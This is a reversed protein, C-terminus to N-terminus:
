LWHEYLIACPVSLDAGTYKHTGTNLGWGLPFIKMSLPITSPIIMFCAKKNWCAWLSKMSYAQWSFGTNEHLGIHAKPGSMAQTYFFKAAPAPSTPLSTWVFWQSSESFIPSKVGFCLCVSTTLSYAEDSASWDKMLLFDNAIFVLNKYIIRKCALSFCGSASSLTVSKTILFLTSYRM